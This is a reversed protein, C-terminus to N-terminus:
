GKLRVPLGAWVRDVIDARAALAQYLSGTEDRWRREFPDAPVVGAGIEDGVLVRGGLRALLFPVADIGRELLLRVGLHLNVTLEAGEVRELGGAGFDCVPSLPGYLSGAYARKGM